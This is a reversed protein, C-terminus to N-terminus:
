GRDDVLRANGTGFCTAQGPGTHGGTCAANNNCIQTFTIGGGGTALIDSSNDIHMTAFGVVTASGDNCNGIPCRTIPIVYDHVGHDVCDQFDKLIPTMNGNKLQITEGASLLPARGGGCEPPLWDLASGPGATWCSNQAQQPQLVLTFGRVSCPQGELYSQLQCDGITIPASPQAYGCCEYTAVARKTVATNSGNGFVSALLYRVNHITVTARVANDAGGASFGDAVTYSGFELRVDGPGPGRGDTRNQAAVTRAAAKASDVNGGKLLNEAGALAAADVAVQVETATDSLRSVEITIAAIAVIAALWLAFLAMAIGREHRTAAKM